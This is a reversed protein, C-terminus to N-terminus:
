KGLLKFQYNLNTLGSVIQFALADQEDVDVTPKAQFELEYRYYFWGDDEDIRKPDYYPNKSLTIRNSETVMMGQWSLSLGVFEVQFKKIVTDLNDSTQIKVIFTPDSNDVYNTM